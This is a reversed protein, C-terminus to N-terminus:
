VSFSSLNGFNCQKNSIESPLESEAERFGNNYEKFLISGSMECQEPILRKEGRNERSPFWPM